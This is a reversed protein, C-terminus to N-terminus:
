LVRYSHLMMSSLQVAASTYRGNLMLLDFAGLMALALIAARLM